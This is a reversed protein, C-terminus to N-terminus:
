VNEKSDRSSSAKSTMNEKEIYIKNPIDFQSLWFVILIKGKVLPTNWFYHQSIQKKYLDLPFQIQWCSIEWIHFMVLLNKRLTINVLKFLQLWLHQLSQIIHQWYIDRVQDLLEAIRIVSVKQMLKEGM